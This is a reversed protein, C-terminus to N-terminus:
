NRLWTTITTHSKIGFKRAASKIEMEGNDVEQVVALKLAYSYDKQTHKTCKKENRQKM